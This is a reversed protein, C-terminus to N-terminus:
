EELPPTPISEIKNFLQTDPSKIELVPIPNDFEDVEIPLFLFGSDGPLMMMYYKFEMSFPSGDFHYIDKILVGAIREKKSKKHNYEPFVQYNINGEWLFYGSPTYSRIKTGTEDFSLYSAFMEPIKNAYKKGAVQSAMTINQSYSFIGCFMLILVIRNKM